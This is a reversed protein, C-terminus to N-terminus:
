RTASPRRMTLWARRRKEFGAELGPAQAALGGIRPPVHRDRRVGAPRGGRCREHEHNRRLPDDVSHGLFSDNRRSAQEAALRVGHFIDEEDSGLMEHVTGVKTGDSSSVPTGYTVARWAIADNDTM